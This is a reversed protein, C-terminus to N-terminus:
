NYKSLLLMYAFLTDIEFKIIVMKPLHGGSDIFCFVKLYTFGEGAQQQGAIMNILIMVGVPM